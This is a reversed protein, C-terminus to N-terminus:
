APAGTLRPRVSFVHAPVTAPDLEVFNRAGHWSYRADTLLDHVEFDSDNALGLAELDLATWASQTHVPDLNVLFLVVDEDGGPLVIRKSWGLIM